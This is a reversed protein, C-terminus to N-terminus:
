LQCGEMKAVLKVPGLLGSDHLPAGAKPGAITWTRRQDEPLSADYVLRNYWTSTVSVEILNEGEKLLDTVDLSYPAAWLTGAEKGNVKVVAIQEVDGLDIEYRAKKEKSDLVFSSSYEATGSFAKGEASINLDKWPKLEDLELPADIGWGEPFALTWQIDGLQVESETLPSVKHSKENHCFVIFLCEGQALKLHVRSYDGNEETFINECSGDMPNWIRASGTSHFDVDGEFSDLMPACVMYWDANEACRHLWQVRTPRVDPSIGIEEIAEELSLGGLVNSHSWLKEVAKHFDEKAAGELRTAPNAPAEGVM